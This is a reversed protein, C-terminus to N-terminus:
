IKGAVFIMEPSSGSYESSDFDGFLDVVKFGCLGLLHEMEYRFFYRMPFSQVLRENRGDPHTVYFIMEIENYQLEPHFGATRNARRLRRGDPLRTEPADEREVMYEPNPELRSFYPRYVDFVLLGGSDLHRHACELCSKQEEVTILHQFPRFPITILKYTEGTDFGTMDGQVLRVRRQVAAPQRGLKERCKALMYPSVDLGTIECGSMATPILVRGTGCGMELTRGGAKGSYDTFFNVDRDTRIHTDYVCDYYEAQFENYEYEGYRGTM